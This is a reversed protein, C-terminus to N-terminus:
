PYTHDQESRTSTSRVLSFRRCPRLMVSFETTGVEVVHGQQWNRRHDSESYRADQDGAARHIWWTQGVAIECSDLLCAVFAGEQRRRQSNQDLHRAVINFLRNKGLVLVLAMPFSWILTQSGRYIAHLPYRQDKILFITSWMSWQAAFVMRSYICLYMAATSSLGRAGASRQYKIRLRCFLFLTVAAILLSTSFLCLPCIAESPMTADEVRQVLELEIALFRFANCCVGYMFYVSIATCPRWTRRAPLWGNVALAVNPVVNLYLPPWRRSFGNALSAVALVLALGVRLKTRRLLMDDLDVMSPPCTSITVLAGTAFISVVLYFCYRSVELAAVGSRNFLFGAIVYLGFFVGGVVGLRIGLM